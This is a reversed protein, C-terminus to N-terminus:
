ADPDEYILRAPADAPWPLDAVPRLSLIWSRKKLYRMVDESPSMREQDFSRFIRGEDWQRQIYARERQGHVEADPEKRVLDVALDVNGVVELAPDLFHGFLYVRRAKYLWRDDARVEALRALFADLHRQAATRSVPRATALALANGAPTTRWFGRRDASEVLRENLLAELLSAVESPDAGLVNQLMEVSWDRRALRKLADRVRLIPFNAIKSKPDIRM